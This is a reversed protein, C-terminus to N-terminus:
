LFKFLSRLGFRSVLRTLCSVPVKWRNENMRVHYKGRSGDREPRQERKAYPSHLIFERPISQRVGDSVPSAEAASRRQSRRSSSRARADSDGGGPGSSDTSYDIYTKGNAGRGGALFAADAGQSTPRSPSSEAFGAEERYRLDSDAPSPSPQGAELAKLSEEHASIRSQRHAWWRRSDSVNM